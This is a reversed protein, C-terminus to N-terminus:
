RKQISPTVFYIDLLEITTRDKKCKAISDTLMLSFGELSFKTLMSEAIANTQHEKIQSNSFELDYVISDLMLNENNCGVIVGELTMSRRMVKGTKLTRNNQLIVEANTM